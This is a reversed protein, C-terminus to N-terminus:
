RWDTDYLNSKGLNCEECLIQLNDVDLALDPFTSKPKIHDVHMILGDARGRGCCKCNNGNKEFAAYRVARWLHSKYFDVGIAEQFAKSHSVKKLGKAMLENLNDRLAKISQIAKVQEVPCKCMGAKYQAKHLKRRAKGIQSKLHMESDRKNIKLM